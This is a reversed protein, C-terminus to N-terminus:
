RRCRAFLGFLVVAVTVAPVGFGPVQDALDENDVVNVSTSEGGASVIATGAEEFVVTTSVTTSTGGEVTVEREEVVEGDAAIPVTVTEANEGENEITAVVETREGATANGDVSVSTATTCSESRIVIPEDMDLPTRQPNDEPASLVEWDAVEGDFVHYDAEDNFAPNIEIAFEDELGGNFAGGDTRAETWTWTIRSWTDGHEWTADAENQIEPGDDVSYNDDEVVWDGNEPLNEFEMTVAGGDTDGELQDHILLLSLGDSGEHLTLVSTDDEQLHTTGFSSYSYSSPDTAPNRYDYFEEVSQNGDGVPEIPICRDGQVVSYGEIEHDHSGTTAADSNSTASVTGAVGTGAVLSVSLVTIM